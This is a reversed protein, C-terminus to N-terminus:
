PRDKKRLNKFFDDLINKCDTELIGSTIDFSHNLINSKSLDCFGGCAGSKTDPAGFVVRPIRANIVAGTCMPCPELTVYLTCDSLRWNGLKKCAKEIAIMEAHATAINSKERKNYGRAIVKDHRVIVAGIPIEDISQAKKAEKLAKRMFLIDKEMCINYSVFPNKDIFRHKNLSQVSQLPNSRVRNCFTQRDSNQQLKSM